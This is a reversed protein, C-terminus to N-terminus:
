QVSRPRVHHIEKPTPSPDHDPTPAPPLAAQAEAASRPDATTTPERAKADQGILAASPPQSTNRVLTALSRSELDQTIATRLVQLNTQYGLTQDVPPVTRIGVVGCPSM